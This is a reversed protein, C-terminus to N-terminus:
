FFLSPWKQFASRTTNTAERGVKCLASKEMMQRIEKFQLMDDPLLKAIKSKNLLDMQFQTGTICSLCKGCTERVLFIGVRCLLDKINRTNNFVVISGSGLSIGEKKLTELSIQTDLDSESLFTGTVGGVLATQFSHGDSLGGGFEFIVERFTAGFPVEVLGPKAIDGTLCLLITGKSTETGIKRYLISGMRLIVPINSLTEVNNIVTPKGFLGQSTPFPPKRRPIGCKGEISELLATEEGSVYRGAGKRLEVDFNFGKGMINKGLLGTERADTIAQSMVQYALEYEGNIFIYGQVAEIAYGAIIVGELVSHPDDELLVRDKFTTPDAEVANCVIFKTGHNATAAKEWKIGSLFSEGGRGTLGSSKIEEIVAERSMTLAQKLAQYGEHGWYEMLGFTRGKGCHRTIQKIPGLIETRSHSSSSGIQLRPENRIPIRLLGNQICISPTHACLGLCPAKEVVIEDDTRQDSCHHRITKFVAEPGAMKCAPDNCIHLVVKNVPTRHFLPFYNLVQLIDEAPIELNHSIEEIIHDPIFGYLDQATHLCPLLASRGDGSQSHITNFFMSLEPLIRVDTNEM